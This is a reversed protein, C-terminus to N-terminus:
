RPVGGREAPSLIRKVPWGHASALRTVALRKGDTHDVVADRGFGDARRAVVNYEAERVTVEHDGDESEVLWAEKKV